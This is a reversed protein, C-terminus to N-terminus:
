TEARPTNQRLVWPRQRVCLRTGWQGSTANQSVIWVCIWIICKSSTFWCSENFIGDIGPVVLMQLSHEGCAVCCYHARTYTAVLLLLLLLVFTYFHTLGKPVTSASAIMKQRIFSKGSQAACIYFCWMASTIRHIAFTASHSLNVNFLMIKFELNNANRTSDVNINISTHFVAM